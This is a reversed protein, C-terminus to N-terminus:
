GALTRSRVTTAATTLTTLVTAARRLTGPDGCTALLEAQERADPCGPPRARHAARLDDLDYLPEGPLPRVPAAMGLEATLLRFAGYGVVYLGADLAGDIPQRSAVALVGGDLVAWATLVPGHPERATATPGRQTSAWARVASRCGPGVVFVAPALASRAFSGTWEGSYAM